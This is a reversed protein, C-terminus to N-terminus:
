SLACPVINWIRHYVMNSFFLFFFIFTQLQAVRTSCFNVCCQLDVIHAHMSLGKLRTWSRAVGHVTICWAGRDMLNDLCSYQLPNDYGEGPSIELGLISGTDGQPEQMAPLNKVLSAGFWSHIPALHSRNHRVRQLGTPRLGGFEETWPNGWALISSLSAM